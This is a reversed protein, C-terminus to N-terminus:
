CRFGEQGARRHAGGQTVCALGAHGAQGHECAHEGLWGGLARSGADAARGWAVDAHAADESLQQVDLSVGSARAAAITSKAYSVAAPHSGVMILACSPSVLGHNSMTLTIVESVEQLVHSCLGSCIGTCADQEAGLM